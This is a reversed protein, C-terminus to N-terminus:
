VPALIHAHYELVFLEEVNEGEGTGANRLKSCICVTINRGEPRAKMSSHMYRFWM